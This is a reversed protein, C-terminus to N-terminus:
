VWAVQGNGGGTQCRMLMAPLASRATATRPEVAAREVLWLMPLLHLLHEDPQLGLAGAGLGRENMILLSNAATDSRESADDDDDDEEDPCECQIVPRSCDSCLFHSRFHEWVLGHLAGAISPFGSIDEPLSYFGDVLSGKQGKVFQVLADWLKNTSGVLDPDYSELPVYKATALPNFGTAAGLSPRGITVLVFAAMPGPLGYLQWRQHEDDHVVVGWM